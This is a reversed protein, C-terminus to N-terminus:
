YWHPCPNRWQNTRRKLIQPQIFVESLYILWNETITIFIQSFWSIFLFPKSKGGTKSTGTWLQSARNSKPRHHLLVDTCSHMALSHVRYSPCLLSSSSPSPDWCGKWSCTGEMTLGGELGWTKLNGADGGLVMAPSCVKLRHVKPACM